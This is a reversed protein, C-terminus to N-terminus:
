PSVFIELKSQDFIKRMTHFDILQDFRSRPYSILQLFVANLKSLLQYICLTNKTIIM